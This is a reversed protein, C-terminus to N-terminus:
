IFNQIEEAVYKANYMGLLHSSGFSYKIVSNKTKRFNNEIVYFPIIPDDLSSLILHPVDPIDVAYNLADLDKLLIDMNFDEAFTAGFDGCMIQFMFLTMYPNIKYGAIMADLSFKRVCNVFPVSSLFNAFGEVCVIKKLNFFSYKENLQLLKSYGLSHGIGIIERGKFIKELEHEPVDKKTNFYDESLLVIDFDKINEVLKKWYGFCAGFGNFFVLLEPKEKTNRIEKLLM